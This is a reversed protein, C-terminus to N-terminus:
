RVSVQQMDQFDLWGSEGNAWDILVGRRGVQRVTGLDNPNKEWMVVTGVLLRSAQKASM